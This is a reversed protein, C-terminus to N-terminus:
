VPEDRGALCPGTTASPREYVDATQSWKEAVDMAVEGVKVLRRDTPVGSNLEAFSRRIHGSAEDDEDGVKHEDGLFSDLRDREPLGDWEALVVRLSEVDMADWVFVLRPELRAWLDDPPAASEQYKQRLDQVVAEYMNRVMSERVQRVQDPTFKRGIVGALAAGPSVAEPDFGEPSGRWAMDEAYAREFDPAFDAATLRRTPRDPREALMKRHLEDTGLGKFFVNERGPRQKLKGGRASNSYTLSTGDEYKTVVDSWVGAKPFTYVVSYLGLDPHVWAQLRVGGMIDLDFFGVEEYGLGALPVALAAAGADDWRAGSVPVLRVTAPSASAGVEAVIKKVGHIILMAKGVLLLVRFAVYAVILLFIAGLIQLFLGM